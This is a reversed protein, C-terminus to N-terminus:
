RGTGTIMTGIKENFSTSQLLTELTIHMRYRWYHNPNAPENIREAAADPLRIKDDMAFWDQLPIITLMSSARLHNYIIQEAVEVPCIEPAEGERHLIQNYYRQTKERNETWWARIPSMDHTSTTCVSLYPLQTLDTFEHEMDKTMRELELSLLQLSQMVEPVTAPLVGLDEGCVLMKTSELLPQLRSLATKKWFDNHREFFFDNYLKDFAHKQEDPLEQYALSQRASIRPHYRDPQYPDRVFLVENYQEIETKYLPLAPNFYGCLGESYDVPIEWIRFFGLIHDIRISDFYQQLHSLRKKWWVFGDKKFEDWKYPPFSWNQGKESFNDPPAGTQAQRNFYGPETWSEVSERNVGIPLDGKLVVRNERAYCAIAEMQQHLAYQIFFLFTFEKCAEHGPQCFKEMKEPNYHADEEWKTFDATHHKDRLYSFAAYPLLWDKSQTIFDQFDKNKLLNNKEQNFYDRYYATKYKEVLPYDVTAKENLQQQIKQYRAKKKKDNLQGLMPINLYLPHLAYVSIASYPYSDKWTHTRTTDNMPLVQIVHQKTIKAWDILKKIDGIDGIGFSQESRLSFVPIVTGCAKWSLKPTRLRYADISLLTDYNGRQLPYPSTQPSMGRGGEFPSNIIRNKGEEWYFLQNSTSDLVVFKYEMPFSIDDTNLGIEWLPFRSDSLHLALQPNWNGLCTQNGTLAVIQGPNIEPARVYIDIYKKRSQLLPMGATSYNRSLLLPMTASRLRLMGATSFTTRAFINESFASTYFAKDSTKTMWDDYLYYENYLRDFVVHHKFGGEEAVRIGNIDEVLYNYTIDKITDPLFVELRWEEQNHYYM